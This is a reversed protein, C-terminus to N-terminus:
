KTLYKSFRKVGEVVKNYDTCFSLRVFSDSSKSFVIGPVVAVKEHQLLDRTFDWSNKNSQSINIFLYFAGKPKVYQINHQDLIQTAIKYNKQYQKVIPEVDVDFAKIAAHQIFPPVGAAMFQQVKLAQEIIAEDAMVYGIRWGTMAYPKSLSQCYIIQSKYKQNQVLFTPTGEYILQNYVDDSIIYIDNEDMIRTLVDISEKNYIVGTPNNPSNIIIAKTNRTLKSTIKEYSLQFEEPTTDIIVPIAKFTKVIPYYAVYSPDFIIVEDDPNLIAGLATFLAGSAGQTILVENINYDINQFRKEFEVIKSRLQIMGQYPPYKTQDDEIAQIAAEKVLESTNFMPEGITLAIVDDVESAEQNLLRIGSLKLDVISDNLRHKM